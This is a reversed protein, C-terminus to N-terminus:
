QLKAELEAWRSYLQDVLKQAERLQTYRQELRQADSSIAPDEAERRRADIQQEAELIREEMSEWEKKEHYSLRPPHNKSASPKPRLTSDAGRQASRAAQLQQWQFYDAFFDGGGEGDLCLVCTSVRDLLFRDHTVLVMAGPYDLLNEELVELTPIDLDNTPEDLLLLDAPELMLRAIHVRALEGGSFQGAPMDLQEPRFLFRKAWGAVHIPNDRYIVVDADPALARRLSTAPDLEERHQEFTVIKLNEAYVLTGQSAALEGSLIKLLTTKGAGNKGVLGVRIHPSLVFNLGSFLLKGGLEAGLGHATLLRKTQRSSASFGIQAVERRHRNELDALEGLLKGAAEKRSRSKGRRAKPGRRLWELERRVQNALSEQRQFQANLFEGKKELFHSYNGEVILRGEPYTRNLEVMRNVLNDLFYRDHSIVLSAFKATKLLDELWLIGELDLHNTPEDLLLLDLGRVIAQAIALRKQWGGSLSEVLTSDERFGTKGLIMEIRGEKERDDGLESRLSETLVQRVTRGPPFSTQQAVYGLRTRKKLAVEGQDPTEEGALIKALTSKGAGNPGMLGIREGESINLSINEFLPQSGYAKSLSTASLILSM